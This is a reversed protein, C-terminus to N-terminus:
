TLKIDVRPYTQVHQAPEGFGKWNTHPDAVNSTTFEGPRYVPSPFELGIDEDDVFLSVLSELENFSPCWV